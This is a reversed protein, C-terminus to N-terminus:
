LLDCTYVKYNLKTHINRVYGAGWHSFDRKSQLTYVTLAATVAFTLAFALVVSHVEYMSAPLSFWLYMLWIVLITSSIKSPWWHKSYTQEYLRLYKILLQPRFLLIPPNPTISLLIACVIPKFLLCRRLKLINLTSLTSNLSQLFMLAEQIQVVHM